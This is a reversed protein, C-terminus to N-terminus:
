KEQGVVVVVVVVVLEVVDLVELVVVDVVVVVVGADQVTCHVDESGNPVHFSAPYRTLLLTHFVPAAPGCVMLAQEQCWHDM